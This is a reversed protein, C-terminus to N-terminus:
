TAIFCVLGSSRAHADHSFDLEEGIVKCLRRDARVQMAGVFGVPATEYERMSSSGIRPRGEQQCERLRKGLGPEAYQSAVEWEPLHPRITGRPRAIRSSISSAQLIGDTPQMSEDRPPNEEAPM